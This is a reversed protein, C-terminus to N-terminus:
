GGFLSGSFIGSERLMPLMDMLRIIKVAEDARKQREPSLLPKLSMILQCRPDNSPSSFASMLSAMSGLANMDIGGFPNSQERPPEAKSGQGEGSMLSSALDQLNKMDEPSLSSLIQSIDM